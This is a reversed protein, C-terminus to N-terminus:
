FCFSSNPHRSLIQCGQDGSYIFIASMTLCSQVAIEATIVFSFLFYASCLMDAYLCHLVKLGSCVPFSNLLVFCNWARFPSFNIITSIIFENLCCQICSINSSSTHKSSFCYSIRFSYVSVILKIFLRQKGTKSM